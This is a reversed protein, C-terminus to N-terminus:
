LKPMQPVKFTKIETSTQPAKHWHTVGWLIGGEIEFYPRDKYKLGSFSINIKPKFLKGVHMGIIPHYILVVEDLEPLDVETGIWELLAINNAKRKVM